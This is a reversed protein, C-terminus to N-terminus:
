PSHPKLGAFSILKIGPFEKLVTLAEREGDRSARLRTRLCELDADNYGPHTVLEWTGPPLSTLMSRLMACDLIGTGIVAVTGGTLKGKIIQACQQVALQGPLTRDLQGARRPM